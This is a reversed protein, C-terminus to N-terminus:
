QALGLWLARGALQTIFRMGSRMKVQCVVFKHREVAVIDIEGDAPRWNRDLIRFGRGKLYGVRPGSANGASSTRRV